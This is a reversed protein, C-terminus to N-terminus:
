SVESILPECLLGGPGINGSVPSDGNCTPSLHCCSPREEYSDGLNPIQLALVAGHYQNEFFAAFGNQKQSCLMCLLSQHPALSRHVHYCSSSSNCKDNWLSMLFSKNITNVCTDPLVCIIPLIKLTSFFFFFLNFLVSLLWWPTGRPALGLVQAWTGATVQSCRTWGSGSLVTWYCRMALAKRSPVQAQHCM